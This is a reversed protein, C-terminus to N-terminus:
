DMTANGERLKRVSSSDGVLGLRRVRDSLAVNNSEGDLATCLPTNSNHGGSRHCRFEMLETALNDEEGGILRRSHSSSFHGILQVPLKANRVPADRHSRVPRLVEEDPEVVRLLPISGQV